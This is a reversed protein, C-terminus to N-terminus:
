EAAIDHTAELEPHMEPPNFIPLGLALRVAHIGQYTHAASIGLEQAIQRHVGLPPVPLYAEYAVKIRELEEPSGIYGQIEWWSRLHERERLAAVVRKVAAKPFSLERAIQTRIGDFEPQALELYRTEIQTVQEATPEFPKAREKVAKPPRPPKVSAPKVDAQEKVALSRIPQREGVVKAAPPRTNTPTSAPIDPLDYPHEADRVIAQELWSPKVIASTNTHITPQIAKQAVVGGKAQRQKRECEDCLMQTM